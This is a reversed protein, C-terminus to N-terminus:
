FEQEKQAKTIASVKSIWDQVKKLVKEKNREEPFYVSVSLKWARSYLNKEECANEIFTFRRTQKSDLNPQLNASIIAKQRLFLNSHSKRMRGSFLCLLAYSGEM